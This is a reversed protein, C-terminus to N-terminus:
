TAESRWDDVYEIAIVEGGPGAQAQAEALRRAREQETLPEYNQGAMKVYVVEGRGSQRELENVRRQLSM